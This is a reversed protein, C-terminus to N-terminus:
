VGAAAKEEAIAQRSGGDESAMCVMYEVCQEEASGTEASTNRGSELHMENNKTRSASTTAREVEECLDVRGHEIGDHDSM